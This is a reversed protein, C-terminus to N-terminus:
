NWSHTGPSAPTSWTAVRRSRQSALGALSDGIMQNSGFLEYLGSVVALTPKPSRPCGPRGPDFADGKVFRAIDGLGKQEILASGDRM